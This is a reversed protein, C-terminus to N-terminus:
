KFWVEHAGGNNVEIAFRVSGYDKLMHLVEEKLAGKGRGHIVTVVDKKKSISHEIFLKCMELQHDLIIQPHSHELNPNLKEIHLDIQNTFNANQSKRQRTGIRDKSTDFDLDLHDLMQDEEEANDILELNSSLVLLIKNQYKIRVKGLKGIGEYTGVKGSSLIKLKDGIWLKSLNISPTTKMSSIIM